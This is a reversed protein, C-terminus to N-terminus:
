LVNNQGPYLMMRAKQCLYSSFLSMLFMLHGFLAKFQGFNTIKGDIKGLIFWFSWQIHSTVDDLENKNLSCKATNLIQCEKTILYYNWKSYCTKFILRREQFPWNWKKRWHTLLSLLSVSLKNHAFGKNRFLILVAFRSPKKQVKKDTKFVKALVFTM